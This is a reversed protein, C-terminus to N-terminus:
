YRLGFGGFEGTADSLTDDVDTVKSLAPGKWLSQRLAEVQEAPGEAVVEVDGNELNRVYGTLGLSSAQNRVFYRFGVGQVRGSVTAHIRKMYALGFGGSAYHM